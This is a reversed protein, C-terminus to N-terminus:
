QLGENGFVVVGRRRGRWGAYTSAIILCAIEVREEVRRNKRGGKWYM